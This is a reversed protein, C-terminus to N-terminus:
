RVSVQAKATFSGSEPEIRAKKDKVSDLAQAVIASDWPVSL